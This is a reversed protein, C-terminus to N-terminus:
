RNVILPKAIKASETNIIISYIGSNLTTLNLTEVNVNALQSLMLKGQLNYIEISEINEESKVTVFDTTPNPFVTTEINQALDETSVIDLLTKEFTTTGTASGEFDYFVIKYYDDNKTKVFYAINEDILWGSYFDFYKWDHGIANITSTTQDIYLEPNVTQPDVGNAAVAEVGSALLVGTVSYELLNGYGDDLPTTYRQFVLDFDTPMTVINETEFSFHILAPGTLDKTVTKSIENTGDLNAYRFSYTGTGSLETIELKIFNGDRKQIVFVNTGVVTNLAPNYTGWGYDFPSYLDKLSNFAGDTWNQEKNHLENEEIFASLDTINQNFDNSPALYLRLKNAGLDGSENLFIGADQVGDNSFAIDWADNNVIEVEGTSLTYYAQQSYNAGVSVMEIQANLTQTIAIIFCFTLTFFKNM